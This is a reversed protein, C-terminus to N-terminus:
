GAASPSAGAADEPRLDITTLLQEFWTRDYVDLWPEDGSTYLVVVYGRGDLSVAAMNCDVGVLGSAGDITVPETPACEDAALAAAAWRDGTKGALPQSALAIFLHDTLSGDFIFDGASGEFPPWGSMTWPQTAARTLWGTPYAISIGNMKSTFTESLPPTSPAATPSPVPTPSPSPASGATRGGSPQLAIVGVIGIAIVAIATVAVKAFTSMAPFRWPLRSAHRQPISPLAAVVAELVIEPARDPDAELWDSIRPDFLPDRDFTTM